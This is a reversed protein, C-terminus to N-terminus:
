CAAWRASRATPFSRSSSGSDRGGLSIGARATCRSVSAPELTTSTMGLPRLINDSVYRSYPMGSARRSSAGSSRSATTRTSTRSAPRMRSRFAARADHAVDRRRHRALQQDGWPNDEPFGKAHSLLHRITISRRTRRRISAAARAGPGMERGSRRALAERRRAAQSDGDRHLEEDDVRHSVRHESDVPSKAAIDRYGTVGIHALKATSSSRGCAAPFTSASPSTRFRRDIEGFTSSLKAVRNSRRIAGPPDGGARQTHRRGCVNRGCLQLIRSGHRAGGHSGTFMRAFALPLSRPPREPVRAYREAPASM